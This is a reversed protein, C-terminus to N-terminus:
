THESDWFNCQRNEATCNKQWESKTISNPGTYLDNKLNGKNLQDYYYKVEKRTSMFQKSQMKKDM